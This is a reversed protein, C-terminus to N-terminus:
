INNYMVYTEEFISSFYSTIFSVAFRTMLAAKAAVSHVPVTRASSPVPSFPKTAGGRCFFFGGAGGRVADDASVSSAQQQQGTAGIDRVSALFGGCGGTSMVLILSSRTYVSEAFGM